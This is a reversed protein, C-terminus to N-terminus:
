KGGMIKRVEVVEQHTPWKKVKLSLFFRFDRAEQSKLNELKYKNELDRLLQETQKLLIKAKEVEEIKLIDESFQDLQKCLEDTTLNM